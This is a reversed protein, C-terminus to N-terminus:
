ESVEFLYKLYPFRNENKALLEDRLLTRLALTVAAPVRVAEDKYCIEIYLSADGHSNEGEFINCVFQGYQKLKKDVNEIIFDNLTKSDM